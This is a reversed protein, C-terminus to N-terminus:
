NPNPWKKEVIRTHLAVVDIHLTCTEKTAAHDSAGNHPLRQIEVDGRVDHFISSLM